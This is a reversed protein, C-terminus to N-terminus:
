AEDRPDRHLFRRVAKRAHHLQSRSTGAAIELRESIERHTFGEIDHLVLVTRYGDPLMAIARELDVRDPVRPPPGPDPLVEPLEERPTRKRKRLLERARNLAIGTIWTRFAAEWRFGDLARVARLWTDQIVDEAETENGNLFRLVFRYLHPTHRRYLIRFADENGDGQVRRALERDTVDDRPETGM